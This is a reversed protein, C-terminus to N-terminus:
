FRFRWVKPRALFCLKGLRCLEVVFNLAVKGPFVAFPPVSTREVGWLVGRLFPVEESRESTLLNIITEGLGYSNRLVLYGLILLRKSVIILSKLTIAM